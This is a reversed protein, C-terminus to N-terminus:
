ILLLVLDFYLLLCICLEIFVIVFLCCGERTIVTHNFVSFPSFQEREREQRKKRELKRRSGLFYIHFFVIPTDFCTYHYSRLKKRNNCRIMEFSGSKSNPPKM